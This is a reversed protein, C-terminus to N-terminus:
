TAPVDLIPRTLRGLSLSLFTWFVGVLFGGIVDSPWHAGVYIRSLASAAVLAAVIGWCLYRLPRSLGRALLVIALAGLWFFFAVHGSPFSSGISEHATHALGSPRPRRVIINVVNYVVAYLASFGVFPTAARRLLFTAIIVAAGVGIGVFGSFSSVFSDFPNIAGFTVSQLDTALPRDFFFPAPHLTVLVSLIAFLGGAGAAITMFTPDIDGV